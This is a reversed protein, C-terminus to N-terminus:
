APDMLTGHVCLLQLALLSFFMRSNIGFFFLLWKVIGLIIFHQKSEPVSPPLAAWATTLADSSGQNLVLESWM